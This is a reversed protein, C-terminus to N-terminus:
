AHLKWTSGPPLPTRHRPQMRRETGALFILITISTERHNLGPSTGAATPLFQAPLHRFVKPELSQRLESTSGNASVTPWLEARSQSAVADSEDFRAKASQWTPLDRWRKKLSRTWNRIAMPNGGRHSLQKPSAPGDLTHEIAYSEVRKPPVLPGLDPACASVQQLPAQQTAVTIAVGRM